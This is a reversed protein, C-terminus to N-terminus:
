KSVAARSRSYRRITDEVIDHNMELWLIQDKYNDQMKRDAKNHRVNLLYVAWVVVAFVVGAAQDALSQHDALRVLIGAISLLAFWFTTRRVLIMIHYVTGFFFIKDHVSQPVHHNLLYFYLRQASADDLLETNKLLKSREKLFNSPQNELFAKRRKATEKAYMTLGSVLALFFFFLVGLLDGMALLTERPLFCWCFFVVLTAFYFGPILIRLGEYWGFASTSHQDM